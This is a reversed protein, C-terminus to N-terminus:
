ATPIFTIMSILMVPSRLVQLGASPAYAVGLTFLSIQIHKSNQAVTSSLSIFQIGVSMIPFNDPSTSKGVMNGVCM